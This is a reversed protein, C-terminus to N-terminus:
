HSEMKKLIRHVTKWTRTTIAKGHKKEVASMFNPTKDSSLDVVTCLEKNRDKFFTVILYNPKEDKVGKFPDRKVLAEFELQSRIITTSKFGLKKPLADEIKKELTAPSRSPSDFVVNGSAIVSVVNKFGLEEFVSRLKEGHMNPNSPMIGRLLAVYRM